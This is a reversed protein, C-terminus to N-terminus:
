FLGHSQLSSPSSYYGFFRGDGRIGCTQVDKLLMDESIGGSVAVRSSFLGSHVMGGM